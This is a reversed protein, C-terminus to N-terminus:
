HAAAAHRDSRLRMLSELFPIDEPEDIQFSDLPDMLYVAPRRGHRSGNFLTEPPFVYISGNEEFRDITDQQRRPRRRHCPLVPGNDTRQWTYGEVLRASFLSDCNAFRFKNVANDIDDPQRLPSTAQLFVIAEVTPYLHQAAEMLVTESPAEDTASHRSRWFVRVDYRNAVEAVLKCDTAVCVDDVLQSEIAQEISWAILPKGLVAVTNKHPIGKSGARAPIICAIM